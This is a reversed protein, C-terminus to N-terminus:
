PKAPPPMAAKPAMGPQYLVPRNAKDKADKVIRRVDASIVGPDAPVLGTANVDMPCNQRLAQFGAHMEGSVARAVARAHRERPWIALEPHLDALYEAIALSDWVIFDGDILVPVKGSPSHRAIMEGTQPSRLQVVIEDFELGMQRMLLWPRLSWSSWSKTGIVLTPRRQTM